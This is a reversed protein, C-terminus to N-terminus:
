AGESSNNKDIPRWQYHQWENKWVTDPISLTEVINMNWPPHVIGINWWRVELKWLQKEEVYFGNLVEM